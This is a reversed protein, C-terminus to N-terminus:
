ANAQNPRAHDRAAGAFATKRLWDFIGAELLQYLVGSILVVVVTIFALYALSTLYMGYGFAELRDGIAPMLTAHFLYLSYSIQGLWLLLQSPKWGCGAKQMASLSLVLAGFGIGYGLAGAQAFAGGLCQWLLLAISFALAGRALPKPVRVNSRHFAAILMGYMFSGICPHLAQKVYSGVFPVETAGGVGLWQAWVTAASWVALLLWRARGALMTAAFVAYFYMEINLTWGIGYVPTKPFFLLSTITDAVVERPVGHYIRICIYAVYGLTAVAYLPWIRWLRKVLFNAAERTGGPSNWTTYVMIFGSIVFFLDVGASGNGFLLKAIDSELPVTVHPTGHFCLVYLAALGRLAQIFDIREKM